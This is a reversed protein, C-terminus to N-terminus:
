CRNTWQKSYMRSFTANIFLKNFDKAMTVAAAANLRGGILGAYVLTLDDIFVSTNKLIYEIEVNTFVLNAAIMLGVTGAVIPSAYSTGSGTLYWGPAATIPM